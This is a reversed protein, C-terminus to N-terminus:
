FYIKKIKEIWKNRNTFMQSNEYCKEQQEIYINENSLLKISKDIYEQKNNCILFNNSKFITALGGKGSNLVPKKLIMSEVATLGFGEWESPMIGIKSNIIYQYPNEVFGIMKINKELKLTKIKEKCEDFLIGDGIIIASIKKNYEKISKIIDIFLLPSKEKSLRGIFFIDYKDKLKNENAMNIVKNKDIYNELIITKKYFINKYRMEDLIEKSAVVLKHFKFSAILYILSKINISKMFPANCHIHSIKKGKFNISSVLVSARFDHAHIIDPSTKKIIKKINKRTLKKIMQKKINNNQLIKEIEGSPSCYYSDFRDNMNKIITCAVNEAGSFKNSSLIHLVKKKSM